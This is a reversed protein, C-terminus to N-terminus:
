SLAVDQGFVTLTAYLARSLMDMTWVYGRLLGLRVLIKLRFLAASHREGDAAARGCMAGQPLGRLAYTGNIRLRDASNCSLCSTVSRVVATIRLVEVVDRPASAVLQSIDTMSSVGAARQM